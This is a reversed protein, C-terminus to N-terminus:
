FPGDVANSARSDTAPYCRFWDLRVERWDLGRRGLFVRYDKLDHAYPRPRTWHSAVARSGPARRWGPVRQAGLRASQDRREGGAQAAEV